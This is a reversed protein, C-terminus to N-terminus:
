TSPAGSKVSSPDLGYRRCDSEEFVIKVDALINAHGRIEPILKKGQMQFSANFISGTVSEQRYIEGPSLEGASALCAVKASTGTGCPSRDYQQGPCLVFNRSHAKNPDTPPGSIEVHDIEAQEAGCIKLTSLTELIRSAYECLRETTWSQWTEVHTLFFWNGGYAIDGQVTGFNPVDFEVGERYRYSPVNALSVSDDPHLQAMVDGAPTEFHHEGVSIRGLYALTAVVGILGHGCMGLYGRNNFFVVTAESDPNAPQFIAAGVMWPAGRPELTLSTRIWDAQKELNTRKEAATDGPIDPMGAVVVRTPEGGTHSDIVRM